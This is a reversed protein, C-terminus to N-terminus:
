EKIKVEFWCMREMIAIPKMLRPYQRKLVLLFSKIARVKEQLVSSWVGMVGCPNIEQEPAL